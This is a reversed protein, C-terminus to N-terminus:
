DDIGKVFHQRHLKSIGFKRIAQWHEQTGYGKNKAWNYKRLGKGKSKGGLRGMLKDRYVKAIISAAAISISKQDGKIIAKQNKLGVGPIYKVHFADVLMYTRQGSEASRKVSAIAKRMAKETAKVIGYRNIDAVSAEGIGWNANKKIIAALRERKQASLRKSDDIGLEMWNNINLLHPHRLSPERLRSVGRSARKFTSRNLSQRNPLVRVAVAGAVVPGALAGRGVEDVGFILDFKEWQLREFRFNPKSTIM